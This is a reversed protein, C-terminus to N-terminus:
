SPNIGRLLLFVFPLVHRVTAALHELVSGDLQYELSDMTDKSLQIACTEVMRAMGFLTELLMRHISDMRKDDQTLRFELRESEVERKRELRSNDTAGARRSETDIASFVHSDDDNTFVTATSLTELYDVRNSLHQNSETLSDIIRTMAKVKEEAEALALDKKSLSAATVAVM